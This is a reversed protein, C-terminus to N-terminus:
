VWPAFLEILKIKRTIKYPKRNERFFDFITLQEM